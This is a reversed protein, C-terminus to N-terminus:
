PSGVKEPENFDDLFEEQKMTRITYVYVGGAFLALSLASIINRQKIKRVSAVRKRNIEEIRKINILDTTTLKQDTKVNVKQLTDSM